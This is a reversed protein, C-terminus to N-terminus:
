QFGITAMSISANQIGEIEVKAIGGEPAAGLAYIVPLLHEISPHAKALDPLKFIGIAKEEASLRPSEIIELAAREFELAWDRPEAEENWEIDRLNHVLNGSGMILVGERQLVQLSRALAFHDQLKAKADLSLQFTPVSQDPFMHRLVAWTGHDLGWNETTGVGPNLDVVQNAIQPAGPPQYIVKYLEEPFGYFDFIQEPRDVNVVMPGETIWHASVSLIAKPKPMEAGMRRFNKTYQNDAIMNMPSGHGVFLVPPVTASQAKQDTM